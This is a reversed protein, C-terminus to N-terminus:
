LNQRENGLVLTFGYSFALRLCLPPVNKQAAEAPIETETKDEKM